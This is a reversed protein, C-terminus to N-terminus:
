LEKEEIGCFERFSELTEKLVKEPEGVFKLNLHPRLPHPVDYSVFQIGSHYM